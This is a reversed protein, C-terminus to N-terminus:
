EIKVIFCTHPKKYSFKQFSSLQFFSELNIRSECKKNWLKSIEKKLDNFDLKCYEKWIKIDSENLTEKSIDFFKTPHWEVNTWDLTPFGLESQPLCFHNTNSGIQICCFNEAKAITDLKPLWCCCEGPYFGYKLCQTLFVGYQFLVDDSIITGECLGKVVPLSYSLTPKNDDFHMDETSFLDKYLGFFEPLKLLTQKQNYWSDRWNFDSYASPPNEITTFLEVYCKGDKLKVITKQVKQNKESQALFQDKDELLKLTNSWNDSRWLAFDLPTNELQLTEAKSIIQNQKINLNSWIDELEIERAFAIYSKEGIRFQRRRLLTNLVAQCKDYILFHKTQNLFQDPFFLIVFLINCKWFELNPMGTLTLHSVIEKRELKSWPVNIKPKSKLLSLKEVYKAIIQTKSKLFANWLTLHTSNTPVFLWQQLESVTKSPFFVLNREFSKENKSFFLFWCFLIM